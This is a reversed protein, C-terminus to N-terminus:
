RTVTVTALPARLRVPAYAVTPLLVVPSRGATTGSSPERRSYDHNKIKIWTPQRGARYPADLRKAVIGEHDREVITQFLAEGHTPIAQIVHLGRRPEVHECLRERRGALPLSRVDAGDAYLVDFVVFVAPARWSAQEIRRRHQLLSRRRLEVFDSRGEADPVVLEGDLVLSCTQCALDDLIEPLAASLSRGSRSLLQVDAETRRALRPLRRAETRLAL